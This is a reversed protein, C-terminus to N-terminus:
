PPSAIELLIQTLSVHWPEWLEPNFAFHTCDGGQLHGFSLYAIRDFLPMLKLSPASLPGTINGNAETIVRQLIENRTRSLKNMAPDSESMCKLPCREAYMGDSTRFHQPSTERFVCRLKMSVCHAAITRLDYQLRDMGLAKKWDLLQKPWGDINNYHLGKNIIFTPKRTSNGIKKAHFSMLDIEEAVSLSNSGHYYIRPRPMLRARSVDTQTTWSAPALVEFSGFSSASGNLIGLHQHQWSRGSPLNSRRLRDLFDEEFRSRTRNFPSLAFGDWDEAGLYCALAEFWQRSVSDGILVVDQDLRNIVTALDAPTHEFGPGWYRLKHSQNFKSPLQM